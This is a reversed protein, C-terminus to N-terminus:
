TDSEALRELLDSGSQPRGTLYGQISDCGADVLFTMQEETEVGEAVVHLGLNHGLAVVTKAIAGDDIGSGIDKVFARDIKLVDLPLVRLYELSSHGTGFDDVSIRVGLDRLARLAAVSAKTDGMATSETVEVELRSPALGAEDLAARVVRTLNPELLQRAALNVSVHLEGHGEREWRRAESCASRLVWEGIRVILGTEEAVPIFKAPPVKGLKPHNWRLLAEAGLIRRTRADVKPQYHVDFQNRTVAQTLASAVRLQEEARDSMGRAYYECRGGGQQRARALAATASRVLAAMDDGDDPFLAVGLNAPSYHEHESVSYPEMLRRQLDVVFRHVDEEAELPSLSVAFLEDAFRAVTHRMSAQRLRNSAIRLLRDGVDHGLSEVLRQYGDLGVFVLALRRGAERTVAVEDRLRQDFLRRNPLGTLSDYHVQFDIMAEARKRETVDQMTGVLRGSGGDVESVMTGHHHVLREVDDGGFVRHDLEFSGGSMAVRYIAKRVRARDEEHVIELFSDLVLPASSELALLASLEPSIWATDTEQSLEWSGLKAIRHAQRLREEHQQLAESTRRARLSFRVRQALIPWTVPKSVFDTAGANFARSVSTEDDLSTLMIVPLLPDEERLVKCAQYGDLEPMMVDLVVVDPEHERVAAVAKAGDDVAVVRHGDKELVRTSLKRTTADDDALVILSDVPQPVM